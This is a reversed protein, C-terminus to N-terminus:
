WVVIEPITIIIFFVSFKKKNSNFLEFKRKNGMSITGVLTFIEKNSFYANRGAVAVIGSLNKNKQTTWGWNRKRIGEVFGFM